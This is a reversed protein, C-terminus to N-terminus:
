VRNINWKLMKNRNKVQTEKFNNSASPM